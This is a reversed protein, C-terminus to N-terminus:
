QALAVLVPVGAPVRAVVGGAAGVGIAVADGVRGVVADVHGVGVLGVLVAVPDAVAAGGVGVTGAGARALARRCLDLDATGLALRELAGVGVVQDLALLAVV